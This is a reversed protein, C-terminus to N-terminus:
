MVGRFLNEYIEALNGKFVIEFEELKGPNFAIEEIDPLDQLPMLNSDGFDKITVNITNLNREVEKINDKGGIKNLIERFQDRASM